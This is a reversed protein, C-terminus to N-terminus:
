HTLRGSKWVSGLLTFMYVVFDCYMKCKGKTKMYRLKYAYTINRSAHILKNTMAMETLIQSERKNKVREIFPQLLKKEGVSLKVNLFIVDLTLFGSAVHLAM